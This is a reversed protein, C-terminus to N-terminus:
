HLIRKGFIDVNKRLLSAAPLGRAALCNKFTISFISFVTFIRTPAAKVSVDLIPLLLSLADLHRRKDCLTPLKWHQLRDKRLLTM